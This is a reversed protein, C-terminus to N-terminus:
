RIMRIENEVELAVEPNKELYTKVEDQSHGLLIDKFYFSQNRLHITQWDLGFEFIDNIKGVGQNYMIKIDIPFKIRRIEGHIARIELRLGSMQKNKIIYQVPELEFRHNAHLFPSLRSLHKSLGHYATGSHSLSRQTFVLISGFTRAERVLTPLFAALKKEYSAVESKDDPSTISDFVVMGTSHTCILSRAIDIASELIQDRVLFIGEASVGLQNSYQFELSDDLDFYVVSKDAQVVQSMLSLSLTTKGSEFPGRIIVMEGPMLGKFPLALDLKLSGTSIPSNKWAEIQV